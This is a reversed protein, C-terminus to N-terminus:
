FGSASGVTVSALTDNSVEVMQAADRNRSTFQDCRFCRSTFRYNCPDYGGSRSIVCVMKWEQETTCTCASSGRLSGSNEIVDKSKAV